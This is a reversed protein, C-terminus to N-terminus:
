IIKLDFQLRGLYRTSSNFVFNNRITGTALQLFPIRINGM